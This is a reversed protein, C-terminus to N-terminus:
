KVLFRKIKRTTTKEFETDRIEHAAIHKFTPLSKNTIEVAERVMEKIEDASKGVTLEPNPYIVATIVTEGSESARGIVVCEGIIGHHSLHEELEEPFINKGNSLIIVNKKRGTIFVYGNSDMYGIDGTRFWGDETFVEANAEPNNLYGIMVNDGKVLIEGTESEADRDIKVECGIVAPGVSGLKKKKYRNVAVLPSCETIGYGEYIDIGFADFDKILQKSLPAGGCIVMQLNGGLAELVEKFLKRRLDIGVKRLANSLKIAFNVTRRKGKKDIEKWIRKHITEVFLPVLLLSDPKFYSFSKLANKLSDNLYTTGGYRSLALHETTVEYSHNMPLVSVFTNDSCFHTADVCANCNSALNKQSLLVCKSTGTTGSTFIMAAPAERDPTFDVFSRNGNDLAARGKAIIDSLPVFREDPMYAENPVIPLFFKAKVALRAIEPMKRNMSEAYVIVEAGAIEMFSAITQPDLEKDLPVATGGGNAAAYYAVMYYPNAEGIVAISKGMYGMESFATGLSDVAEKVQKYSFSLVEKGSKYMYLAKDGYDLANKEVLEKLDSIPSPKIDYNFKKEM